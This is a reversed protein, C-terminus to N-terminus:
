GKDVKKKRDKKKKSKKKIKDSSKLAKPLAIRTLLDILSDRRSSPLLALVGKDIAQLKPIAVALADRGTDTLNIANARSDTTSKTREMLGKAEMRAVMEALTSRDIGTQVVLDTQSVGSNAELAALVALQRQTLGIGGFAEAHLDAALQQARHLLHSPSKNPDFAPTTPVVRDEIEHEDSKSMSGGVRFQSFSSFSVMQARVLM